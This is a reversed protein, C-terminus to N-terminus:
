LQSGSNGLKLDVKFELVEFTSNVLFWNDKDSIRIGRKGKPAKPDVKIKIEVKEPATRKVGLIKIGQNPSIAVKPNNPLNKGNIVLTTEQGQRVKSPSVSKIAPCFSRCPNIDCLISQLDEYGTTVNLGDNRLQKYDSRYARKMKNYLKRRTRQLTDIRKEAGPTQTKAYQEFDEFILRERILSKGLSDVPNDDNLRRLTVVIDTNNRPNTLLKAYHDYAKKLNADAEIRKDLAARLEAFKWLKRAARGRIGLLKAAARTRGKYLADKVASDHRGKLYDILDDHILIEELYEAKQQDYKVPCSKTPTVNTM